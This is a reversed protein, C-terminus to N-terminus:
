TSRGVLSLVLFTIHLLLLIFISLTILSFGIYIYINQEISQYLNKQKWFIPYQFYNIILCKWKLQQRIAHAHHFTTPSHWLSDTPSLISLYRLKRIEQKMSSARSYLMTFNNKALERCKECVERLRERKRQLQGITFNSWAKTTLELSLQM